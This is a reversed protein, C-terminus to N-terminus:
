PSAWRRASRAGAFAGVGLPLLHSVLTHDLTMEACCLHQFLLAGFGAGLGVLLGAGEPDVPAAGRLERAALAALPLAVLLGEAACVGRALHAWLGGRLLSGEVAVTVGAVLAVGGLALLGATIARRAASWGLGSPGRHSAALWATAAGLLTFVTGFAMRAAPQADHDARPHVWWAVSSLAGLAGLPLAWARWWRRPTVPARDARLAARLAEPLAESAHTTSPSSLARAIDADARLLASCSPCGRTHTVLASPWPAGSVLAAVTEDCDSM